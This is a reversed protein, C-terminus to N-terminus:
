LIKKPKSPWTEFQKECNQCLRQVKKRKEKGVGKARCEASCFRKTKVESPYIYFEKGCHECKKTVGKPHKITHTRGTRWQHQCERSCFHHKSKAILSPRKYFDRGCNDCKINNTM